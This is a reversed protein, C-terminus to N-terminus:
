KASRIRHAKEHCPYCILVVNDKTSKGGRSKFTIHHLSLGRFDGRTGCKSCLGHQAEWLENRLKYENTLETRRKDSVQKM